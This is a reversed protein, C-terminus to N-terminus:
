AGTLESPKGAADGRPPTRVILVPGHATKLISRAISGMVLEMLGTHGHTGTVILDVSEGHALAVIEKAPSGVKCITKVEKVLQGCEHGITELRAEALEQASSLIQAIDSAGWEPFITFAATDVVHIILLEAGFTKAYDVALERAAECNESFDTCFLIKKPPM